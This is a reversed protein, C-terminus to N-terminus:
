RFFAIISLVGVLIAIGTAIAGQTKSFRGWGARRAEASWPFPEGCRPCAPGVDFGSAGMDLPRGCQPCETIVDAGCQPCPEGYEESEIVAADMVHGRECVAGKTGMNPPSAVARIGPDGADEDVIEEYGCDPCVPACDDQDEEMDSGCEPCEYGM